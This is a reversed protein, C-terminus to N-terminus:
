RSHSGTSSETYASTMMLSNVHTVRTATLVPVQVLAFLLLLFLWLVMAGMYLVFHLGCGAMNRQRLKGVDIDLNNFHRTKVSAMNICVM